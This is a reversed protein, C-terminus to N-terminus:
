NPNNTNSTALSSTKRHSTISPATSAVVTTSDNSTITSENPGKGHARQYIDQLKRAGWTPHRQRLQVLRCAEVEGLQKPSSQPRRSKEALQWIGEELLRKKWEYGVRPSIGYERCLARFNECRLNWGKKWLNSKKGRCLGGVRGSRGM